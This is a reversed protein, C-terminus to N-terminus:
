NSIFNHTKMKIIVYTTLTYQFHYLSAFFCFLFFFLFFFFVLASVVPALRHKVTHLSETLPCLIGRDSQARACDSWPMRQGFIVCQGNWMNVHQRKKEHMWHRRKEFRDVTDSIESTPCHNSTNDGLSLYFLCPHDLLPSTNFLSTALFIFTCDLSHCHLFLLFTLPEM